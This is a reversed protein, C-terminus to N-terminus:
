LGLFRLGVRALSPPDFLINSYFVEALPCYCRGERIPKRIEQAQPSFWVKRFDYDAERLNGMVQRDVCCPSVDGNASISACAFGAYCPIVQRKEELTKQTLRYYERRFARVVRSLTSSGNNSPQSALFAVAQSYEELSPAIGTGQNNLEVREEAVEFNHSAPQLERQVYEYIVPIQPVNFRSIVTHIGVRLNPHPLAKLARYTNLAREWNGPVNRIQDHDPGIGDLSLNITVQAEPCGQCIATVKKVAAQTLLGNTPINIFQPRVQAYFQQTLEVLHESLFPEGGAITLFRVAGRLSPFVRVWEELSLEQVRVEWIRCTRCRSNCANTIHICLSWPLRPPWGLRRFAQYAPVRALAGIM